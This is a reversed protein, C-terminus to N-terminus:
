WPFMRNLEDLLPDDTAGSNNGPSKKEHSAERTPRLGDIRRINAAVKDKVLVRADCGSLADKVEQRLSGITAQGTLNAAQCTSLEVKVQALDARVGDIRVQQVKGVVIGGIIAAVLYPWLVKAARLCLSAIM